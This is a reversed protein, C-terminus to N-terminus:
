TTTNITITGTLTKHVPCKDAIGKLRERQEGDLEGEIELHRTIVFAGDVHDGNLTVRVDKLPWGKREAYVKLTMATCSGLAALLLEHPAAGTDEGGKDLPEDARLRHGAVSVDQAFPGGAWGVKVDRM